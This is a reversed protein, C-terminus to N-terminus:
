IMLYGDMQMVNSFKEALKESLGKKLAYEKVQNFSVEVEKDINNTEATM